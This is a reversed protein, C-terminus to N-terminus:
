YQLHHMYSEYQAALLFYVFILCILFHIVDALVLKRATMGSYEYGYGIPLSQSAVEEVAKIADGSSFGKM